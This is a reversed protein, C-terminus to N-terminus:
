VCVTDDGAAAFATAAIHLLYNNVHMWSKSVQEAFPKLPSYSLDLLMGNGDKPYSSNAYLGSYLAEIETLIFNGMAEFQPIEYSEPRYLKDYRYDLNQGCIEPFLAHLAYGFQPTAAAKYQLCDDAEYRQHPCESNIRTRWQTLSLDTNHGIEWAYKYYGGNIYQRVYQSTPAPQLLDYM